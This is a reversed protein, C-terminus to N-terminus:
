VIVNITKLSCWNFINCEFNIRAILNKIYIYNDTYNDTNKKTKTAVRPLIRYKKITSILMTFQMYWVDRLCNKPSNSLAIALYPILRYVEM